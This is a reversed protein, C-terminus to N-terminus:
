EVVEILADRLVSAEDHTMSALAIGDSNEILVAPEGTNMTGVRVTTGGDEGIGELITTLHGKKFTPM